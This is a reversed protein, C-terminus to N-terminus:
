TLVGGCIPTVVGGLCGVGSLFGSAGIDLGPALASASTGIADGAPVSMVIAVGLLIPTASALVVAPVNGGTGDQGSGADECTWDAPAAGLAESSCDRQTWHPSVSKADLILQM